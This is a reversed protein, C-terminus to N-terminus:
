GKEQRIIKILDSAFSPLPNIPEYGRRQYLDFASVSCHAYVALNRPRALQEEVFELLSSGIGRIRPEEAKKIGWTCRSKELSSPINNPNTALDSVELCPRPDIAGGNKYPNKGVVVIGQIKNAGEWVFFSYDNGISAEKQARYALLGISRIVSLSDKFATEEKEIQVTKNRQKQYDNCAKKAQKEWEDTLREIRKFDVCEVITHNFSNSLLKM